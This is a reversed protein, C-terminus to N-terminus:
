ILAVDLVDPRHESHSPFHTPTNPALVAYNVQQVHHYFVHGAPNVMRSNLLSPKANLDGAVIFWDCGNTLIDLDNPNLQDLPRKYVASIRIHDYRTPIEISTSNMNSDFKIQRHILRRHVIITTCGNAASM